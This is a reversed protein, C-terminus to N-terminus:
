PLVLVCLHSIDDPHVDSPVLALLETQADRPGELKLALDSMRTVVCQGVHVANDYPRLRRWASRTTPLDAAFFSGVIWSAEVDTLVTYSM